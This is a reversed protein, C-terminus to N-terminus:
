RARQWTVEGIELGGTTTTNVTYRLRDGNLTFARRQETGEWNPFLAHDIRFTLVGERPAVAYHGFHTNSGQVTERYEEPTGKAKDKAAFLTRGPRFIHVSYRGQPDLVLQGDPHPGYPQIRSGDPLINDVSVLTWTGVLDAQIIAATTAPPSPGASPATPAITGTTPQLPPGEHGGEAPLSREPNAGIPQPAAARPALAAVTLLVSLVVVRRLIRPM